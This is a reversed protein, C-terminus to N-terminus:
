AAERIKIGHEQLADTIADLDEPHIGDLDVGESVYLFEIGKIDGNVDLRLHRSDDLEKGGGYETDRIEVYLIDEDAYYKVEM